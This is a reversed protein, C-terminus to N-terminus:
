AMELAIVVLDKMLWYEGLLYNILCHGMLDPQAAVVSGVMMLAFWHKWNQSLYGPDFDILEVFNEICYFNQKADVTWNLECHVQENNGHLNM